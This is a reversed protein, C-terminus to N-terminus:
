KNLIPDCLCDRLDTLVIWNGRPLWATFLIVLSRQLKNVLTERTTLHSVRPEDNKWLLSQSYSFLLTFLLQVNVLERKWLFLRQFHIVQSIPELKWFSFFIQLVWRSWFYENEEEWAFFARFVHLKIKVLLLKGRGHNICVCLYVGM